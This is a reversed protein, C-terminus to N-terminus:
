YSVIVDRIKIEAVTCHSVNYKIVRKHPYTNAEEQINSRTLQFRVWHRYVLCVKYLLNGGFQLLYHTSKNSPLQPKFRLESMVFSDFNSFNRRSSRLLIGAFIRVTYLIAIFLKEFRNNKTWGNMSWFLGHLIAPTVLYTSYVTTIVSM